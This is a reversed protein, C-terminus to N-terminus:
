LEHFPINGFRLECRLEFLVTNFGGSKHAVTVNSVAHFNAAVISASPEPVLEIIKQLLLGTM